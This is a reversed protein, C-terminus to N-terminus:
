ESIEFNETENNELVLKNVKKEINKLTDDCDKVLKMAESYKDISQELDVEGNELENIITELDKIKEEFKKEKVM